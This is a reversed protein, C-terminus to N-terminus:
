LSQEGIGRLQMQVRISPEYVIPTDVGGGSQLEVPTELGPQVREFGAGSEAGYQKSHVTALM